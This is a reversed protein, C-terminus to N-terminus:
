RQRQRQQRQATTTAKEVRVTVNREARGREVTLEVEDGIRSLGVRNRLETGSRMPAGNVAVVLDNTRLGAREASSGPEVRAIVAGQTRKTGLAQAIDPTLDQIAVGIRGRKIEGYAILQDMVQRAMGIPVAFGIGVNGGSPAVIATNIGVIRGQLDVLPGGSNGPNISADTQIFDEYGEIGLGSRGLASIIGSTVTQGLGFPNGIAVVFDGVDLKDSDGLPLAKLGSGNQIQIVAVDTPPDRGVVKANFRQGDKTAIQISSAHEVVHNNTLVYGREADVIGGSGTAQVQRELQKPVDFFQRFVPDQYLPNDEKVRGRVSINVVAPTVERLLPALSPAQPGAFDPITASADSVPSLSLVVAISVAIASFAHRAVM